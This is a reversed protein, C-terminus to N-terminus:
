RAIWVRARRRDLEHWVAPWRGRAAEARRAEIACLEGAVFARRRAGAAGRLWGQMTISDQHEGLVEQLGAALKGFRAAEGGVAAAAAESAYRVRKALIRVHHLEADPPREDLARVAKRLDRWPKVVLAPLAQAAPESAAPALVPRAAAEVLRDVLDFYRRTSMAELLRTRAAEMDAALAAALSAAPRVDVPPLSAVLVLLREHLVERDRVAGLEGALWGLEDRLEDAWVRDLLSRFTRLHSRLRRTGVRAQHVHEPDGGLRVLPDYRLVLQVGAAIAVRVVDGAAPAEPLRPVAVDPEAQAAPGLARLHPPTREARVAGARQLRELLLGLLEEGGADLDVEVERFRAAVRRGHLVSVEDDVIEALQNGSGDLLPVQRRWSSLRAVPELAAGRLYARILALAEDPPRRGAGDYGLESASRGNPIVLTWHDGRHSLSVGWRALRLDVTDYYTTELRAEREPGAVVGEAVGTLDPLHFTPIAGLTVQREPSVARM